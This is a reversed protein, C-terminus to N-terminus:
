AHVQRNGKCSKANLNSALDALFNLLVGRDAGLKGHDYARTLNDVIKRVDGRGAALEVREKLTGIFVKDRCHSRTVLFLQRWPM